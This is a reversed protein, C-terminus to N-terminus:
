CTKTHNKDKRVKMASTEFRLPNNDLRWFRAICDTYRIDTSVWRCVTQNCNALESSCIELQLACQTNFRSSFVAEQAWLAILIAKHSTKNVYKYFIYENIEDDNNNVVHTNIINM